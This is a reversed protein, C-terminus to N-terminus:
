VFAEAMMEDVGGVVRFLQVHGSLDSACFDDFAERAEGEEARRVCMSGGEGFDVDVRWTAAPAACASAVAPADPVRPGFWASVAEMSTKEIDADLAARWEMNLAAQTDRPLGAARQALALDGSCDFLIEFLGIDMVVELALWATQDALPVTAWYPAGPRLSVLGAEAKQGQALMRELKTPRKRVVLAASM